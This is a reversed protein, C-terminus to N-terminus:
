EKPTVRKIPAFKAMLVRLGQNPFMISVKTGPGSGQVDVVKGQGWKDHQAVDGVQWDPVVPNRALPKTVPRQMVSLHPPVRRQTDPSIRRKARLEELLEQPIEKLFRSPLYGNTRGFVTRTTANSVYLEKEARTIGVYCLRREEEIEKPEMLTRSHPFLGEELGALFVIPFELGKASHLTMLTVKSDAQEFSDVDNVLAVQELFDQVTGNPNADGFEKAVSLLEGINEVRAEDQPDRSEELEKLYGTRDLIAQLLEQVNMTEMESVLTFILVSFEELREKTKGKITPIANLMTLTMFVSTGATRAYDQLKAVTTAGISRKPVNIIRLLSVDDFPNFLLRLYALVDKIEKRDYFKTGGVMTYPIGMKILGEELVRSQANTRYLIAMDGYPIDDLSHRKSITESIFASEERESQATFHRIKAGTDKDTWLVKEPRDENNDIVANAAQLITKTSRYNQELKITVCGPYDKEFDLINQIDAGRWAYISQDADGVVCINKHLSALLTALTYQAHNTDQYEDIMIYRFRQRYKDFVEANTQLLKVAVLLLDDFDLANNKRLEREYYEYVDAVKQSYFDTAQRRFDSAFLLRNKADSIASMMAGVPYYKDDLNLAKMAQKLVVQSDGTDYITFNKSYGLYGELEFRLLKACFSHFTSLWIRDAEPGVLDEVRSKMEKAAKNTFTIALIEYPNVGLELLHAIRYTLVRTKGSGAGAVILLPGETTEAARRQEPNLGALLTSMTMRETASIAGFLLPGLCPPCRRNPQEAGM